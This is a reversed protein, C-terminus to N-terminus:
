RLWKPALVKAGWKELVLHLLVAKKDEM